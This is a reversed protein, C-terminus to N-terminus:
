LVLVQHGRNNQAPMAIARYATRDDSLAYRDAAERDSSVVTWSAAPIVTIV